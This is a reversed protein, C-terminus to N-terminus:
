FIKSLVFVINILFENKWMMLQKTKKKYRISYILSLQLNSHLNPQFHTSHKRLQNISLSDRQQVLWMSCNTKQLWSKWIFWIEESRESHQSQTSAQFDSTNWFQSKLQNQSMLTFLKWFTQIKLMSFLNSQIRKKLPQLHEQQQHQNTEMTQQNRQNITTTTQQSTPLHFTIHLTQFSLTFSLLLLIVQKHHSHVQSRESIYDSQEIM